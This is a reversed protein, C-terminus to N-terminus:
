PIGPKLSAKIADFCAADAAPDWYMTARATSCPSARASAAFDDGTRTGRQGRARDDRGDGRKGRRQHAHPHRQSEMPVPQSGPVKRARYRHGLFQVYRRLWAGACHPHRRTSAALMRDRGASFVGGCVEDALETTTIDLSATIYGSAILSEMTKGGTGTAHFVLVEYGPEGAHERARNVCDTTNGFMSATILPKAQGPKPVGPDVM